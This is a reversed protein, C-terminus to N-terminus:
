DRPEAPAPRVERPDASGRRENVALAMWVLLEWAGHIAIFLLTLTVVALSAVAGSAHLVFAAGTVLLGLHCLLPLVIAMLWDSLDVDGARRQAEQYHRFVRPLTTLRLLGLVVLLSGFVSWDLVPVTTLWATLLVQVFHEYIPNLFARSIHATERTVLSSGFTVSLFMLGTLTAAATGVLVYFNQWPQLVTPLSDLPTM